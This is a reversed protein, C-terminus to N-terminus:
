HRQGRRATGAGLGQRERAGASAPWPVEEAHDCFRGLPASPYDSVFCGCLRLSLWFSPLLRFRASLHPGRIGLRGEWWCRLAHSVRVLGAVTLLTGSLGWGSRIAFKGVAGGTLGPGRADAAQAMAQVGSPRSGRGVARVERRAVRWSGRQPSLSQPSDWREANPTAEAATAVLLM